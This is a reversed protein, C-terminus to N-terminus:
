FIMEHRNTPLRWSFDSCAAVLAIVRRAQPARDEARLPRRFNGCGAPRRLLLARFRRRCLFRCTLVLWGSSLLSRQGLDEGIQRPHPAGNKGFVWSNDASRTVLLVGVHVKPVLRVAVVLLLTDVEVGVYKDIIPSRPSTKQGHTVTLSCHPPKDSSPRGPGEAICLFADHLSQQVETRCARQRLRSM